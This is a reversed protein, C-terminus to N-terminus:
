GIKKILGGGGGVSPSVVGVNRWWSAFDDLAWSESLIDSPIFTRTETEMCM